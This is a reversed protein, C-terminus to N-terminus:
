ENIRSSANLLFKFTSHILAGCDFGVKLIESLMRPSAFSMSSFRKSSSRLQFSIAQVPHRKQALCSRTIPMVRLM